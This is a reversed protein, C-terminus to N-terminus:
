SLAPSWRIQATKEGGKKALDPRVDGSYKRLRATRKAIEEDSFKKKHPKYKKGKNSKKSSPMSPM